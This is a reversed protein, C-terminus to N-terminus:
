SLQFQPQFTEVNAPRLSYWRVGRTVEAEASSLFFFFFFPPLQRSTLGTRTSIREHKRWSFALLLLRRRRRYRTRVDVLQVQSVVADVHVAHVSLAAQQRAHVTQGFEDRVGLTQEFEIQVVVQDPVQATAIQQRRELLPFLTLSLSALIEEYVRLNQANENCRPESSDFQPRRVAHLRTQESLQALSSCTELFLLLFSLLHSVVDNSRGM